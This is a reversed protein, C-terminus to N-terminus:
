RVSTGTEVSFSASLSLGSVASAIVTGPSNAPRTSFRPSLSQNENAAFFPSTNWTSNNASRMPDSISMYKLTFFPPSFTLSMEPSCSSSGSIRCGCANKVRCPSGAPYWNVAGASPLYRMRTALRSPFLVKPGRQTYRRRTAFGAGSKRATTMASLVSWGVAGSAPRLPVAARSTNTWRVSPNM